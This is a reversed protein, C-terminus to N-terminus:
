SLGATFLLLALLCGLGISMPNNFTRKVAQGKPEAFTRGPSTMDCTVRASRFTHRSNLGQM